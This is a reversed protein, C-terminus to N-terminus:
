SFGGTPVWALCRRQACLRARAAAGARRGGAASGGPRQRVCEYQHIEEKIRLMILCETNGTLHIMMKRHM